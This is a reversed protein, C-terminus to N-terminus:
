FVTLVDNLYAGSYNGKRKFIEVLNWWTVSYLWTFTTRAGDATFYEPKYLSLTSNSVRITHWATYHHIIISLYRHTFNVYGSVIIYITGSLFRSPTWWKEINCAVDVQGGQTVKSSLTLPWYIWTLTSPKNSTLDKGEWM